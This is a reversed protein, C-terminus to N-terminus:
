ERYDHRRRLLRNRRSPGRLM